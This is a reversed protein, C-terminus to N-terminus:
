AKLNEKYGQKQVLILRFLIVLATSGNNSHINGTLNIKLLLQM